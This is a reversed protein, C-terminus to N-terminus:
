DGASDEESFTKLPERNFSKPGTEGQRWRVLRSLIWKCLHLRHETIM